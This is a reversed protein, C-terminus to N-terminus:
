EICYKKHLHHQVADCTEEIDVGMPEGKAFPTWGHALGHLIVEKVVAPTIVFQSGPVIRYGGAQTPLLTQYYHFSTRLLQGERSKDCIILDIYGDNGKVLWLYSHGDVSISRLGKAAIAM